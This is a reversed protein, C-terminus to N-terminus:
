IRVEYQGAKSRYKVYRNTSYSSKEFIKLFRVEVGSCSHMNINFDVTIPPRAWLRERTAIVLEVEATITVEMMGPFNNIRWVLARQGPEYRARGKTTACKASAATPPMPIKIVVGSAKKDEQFVAAVKVHVLLKNKGEEKLTPVVRFPQNAETVRYRMLEFEGDPPIFTITRESDFKGLRVCRHFSCDDIEVGRNGGSQNDGITPSEREMILRDNLGFKCEPMGTLYTKMLVKGQVESRLVTGDASTLMSVMERVDIYVENNRYRIGERRWDIAGTIQSTLAAGGKEETAKFFDGWGTSKIYRQLVDVACIQPYGYDMTEDFLEYVLTFNSRVSDDDFAEGIYSRLIRIKQFLYELLLTINANNRSAAVIFINQQKIYCFSTNEIFLVPAMDSGGARKNLIEKRFAETANKSIDSRYHRSIIEEGRQNIFLIASAM